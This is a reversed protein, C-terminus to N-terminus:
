AWEALFIRRPVLIVAASTKVALDSAGRLERWQVAGLPGIIEGDIQMPAQHALTTLQDLFRDPEAPTDWILDLDSTETLYALGTLHAWALSGFCRTRPALELVGDITRQWHPPAQGRAEALLPPPAQQILGSAPMAVAVRAKGHSPPLPLGLPLAHVPDEPVRRRLVLPFGRDAWGAVLPLRALDPRVVLAQGWAACSPTLMAHRPLSPNM